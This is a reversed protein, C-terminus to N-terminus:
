PAVLLDLDGIESGEGGGQFERYTTFQQFCMKLTRHSCGLFLPDLSPPEPPRLVGPSGGARVASPFHSRLSPRLARPAVDPSQALSRASPLSRCLVSTHPCRHWLATM